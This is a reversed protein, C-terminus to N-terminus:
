RTGSFDSCYEGPIKTEKEPETELIAEARPTM